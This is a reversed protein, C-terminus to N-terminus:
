ILTLLPSTNNKKFHESWTYDISFDYLEQHITNSNYYKLIAEKSVLTEPSDLVIGLNKSAIHMSFDGIGKTMIPVVGQSTYELLKIPSAVNNLPVDDRLLFGFDFKRLYPLVENQQLSIIHIDKRVKGTISKIISAAESKNRTIITLESQQLTEHLAIYQRMTQEFLQWKSLGGLYVFRILRNNKQKNMKKFVDSTCCPTLWVERESGFTASLRKILNQSVAELFDASRYAHKELLKICKQHLGSFGRYAAEEYNLARFSYYVPTKISFIQKIISIYLFNTKSRTYILSATRMTQSLERLAKYTKIKIGSPANIQGSFSASVALTVPRNQYIIKAPEVIQSHIVGLSLGEPIIM